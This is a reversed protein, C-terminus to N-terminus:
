RNNKQFLQLLRSHEEKLQKISKDQEIIYLTLEEIKQLMKMQLEGVHFGGNMQLEGVHFGGNKEVEREPPMGPLHHNLRIFEAVESIPSLKYDNHFVFDPWDTQLQVKM